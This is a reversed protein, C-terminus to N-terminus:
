QKIPHFSVRRRSEPKAKVMDAWSPHNIPTGIGETAKRKKHAVIVRPSNRPKESVGPSPSEKDLVWGEVTRQLFRGGNEKLKKVIEMSLCTKEFSDDISQYYARQIDVLGALVQNGSFDRGLSIDNPDPSEILKKSDAKANNDLRVWQREAEISRRKELFQQNIEKKLSGDPRMPICDIPIGFTM